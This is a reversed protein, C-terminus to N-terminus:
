WPNNTAMEEDKKWGAKENAFGNTAGFGGASGTTAFPNAMLEAPHPRAPPAARMPMGSAPPVSANAPTSWANFGFNFSPAKVSGASVPPSASAASSPRPQDWPSTAIAMDGLSLKSAQNSAYTIDGEDDEDPAYSVSRPLHLGTPPDTAPDVSFPPASGAREPPIYAAAPLPSQQERRPEPRDLKHLDIEKGLEKSIADFDFGATKPIAALAREEARRAEEEAKRRRELEERDKPDLDVDATSPAMSGLDAEERPPLDDGDDHEASIKKPLDASKRETPTNAGSGARRPFIGLIKKRNKKAEEEAENVIRREQVSMDM